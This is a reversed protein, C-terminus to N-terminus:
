MEMFMLVHTYWKFLAVLECCFTQKDINDLTCM